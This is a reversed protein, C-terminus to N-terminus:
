SVGTKLVHSDREQGPKSGHHTTAAEWLVLGLHSGILVFGIVPFYGIGAARLAFAIATLVALGLVFTALGAPLLMRPNREAVGGIVRASLWLNGLTMALGILASLAWTVGGVLGLILAPIPAVLAGRVAMRRVM